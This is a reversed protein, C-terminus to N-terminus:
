FSCYRLLHKSILIIWYLPLVQQGLLVAPAMSSTPLPSASLFLPLGDPYWSLLCLLHRLYLFVPANPPPLSLINEELKLPLILFFFMLQSSPPKSFRPSLISYVGKPTPAHSRSPFTTCIGPLGSLTWILGPMMATHKGGTGRWFKPFLYLSSPPNVNVLCTHLHNNVCFRRQGLLSTLVCTLTSLLLTTPGISYLHWRSQFIVPDLTWFSPAPFISPLHDAM